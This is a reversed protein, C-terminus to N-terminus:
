RDEYRKLEQVMFFISCILALLGIGSCGVLAAPIHSYEAALYCFYMAFILFVYKISKM